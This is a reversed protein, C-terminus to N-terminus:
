IFHSILFYLGVLVLLYLPLLFVLLGFLVSDHFVTGKTFRTTLFSSLMYLPIFVVTAHIASPIIKRSPQIDNENFGEKIKEFLENGSYKKELMNWNSIFKQHAVTGEALQDDIYHIKEFHSNLQRNFQNFFGAQNLDQDFENRKIPTGFNIILSKGAGKYHQYTLGVPIVETNVTNSNQWAQQALRAAGKKLPRLQWNNQSLGEAFILVRGRNNFITQCANFTELNKTINEKGESLRYVPIMHSAHLLKRAYKNKFADGRTMSNVPVDTYCCINIADLFSNPHNVAFIVPANAPINDRGIVTVKKYFLYFVKIFFLRTVYYFM